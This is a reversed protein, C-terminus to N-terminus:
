RQTSLYRKAVQDFVFAKCLAAEEASEVCGDVIETSASYPDPRYM